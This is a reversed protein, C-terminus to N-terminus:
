YHSLVGSSCRGGCRNLNWCQFCSKSLVGRPKHRCYWPACGGCAMHVCIREVSSNGCGLEENRVETENVVSGFSRAERGRQEDIICVPPLLPIIPKRQEMRVGHTLRNGYFLFSALSAIHPHCRYQMRLLSFAHHSATALRSFLTRELTGFGSPPFSKTVFSPQSCLTPPLQLPDGVASCYLCCSSRFFLMVFPWGTWPGLLRACGFKM